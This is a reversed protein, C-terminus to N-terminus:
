KVEEWDDVLDDIQIEGDASLIPKKNNLWERLSAYKKKEVCVEVMIALEEYARSYEVLADRYWNRETIAEVSADQTARINIHMDDIIKEYRTVRTKLDEVEEVKILNFKDAIYERIM